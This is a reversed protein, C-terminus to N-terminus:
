LVERIIITTNRFKFTSWHRENTSMNQKGHVSTKKGIHLNYVRWFLALKMAIRTREAEAECASRPSAVYAAEGRGPRSGFCLSM